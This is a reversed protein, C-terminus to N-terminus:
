RGVSVVAAASDYAHFSGETFEYTEPVGLPGDPMVVRAGQVANDIVLEVPWPFRFKRGLHDLADQMEQAKAELALNFGRAYLAKVGGPVEALLAVAEEVEDQFDAYIRRCEAALILMDARTYRIVDSQEEIIQRPKKTVPDDIIRKHIVRRMEPM